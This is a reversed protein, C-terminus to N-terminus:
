EEAEAPLDCGDVVGGGGLGSSDVKLLWRSSLGGEHEIATREVSGREGDRALGHM